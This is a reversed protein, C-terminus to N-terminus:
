EKEPADAPTQSTETELQEQTPPHSASALRDFRDAYHLEAARFGADFVPGPSGVFRPPRDRMMQAMKRLADARGDARTQACLLREEDTLGWMDELRQVGM